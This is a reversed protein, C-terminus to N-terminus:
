LNRLLVSKKIQEIAWLAHEAILPELDHTARELAPLASADGTNGLAVCVNRLLGRRKTRMIPTGRFRTKFGAEDLSLLELLDPTALDPRAHDRMIKGAQAFRNWPCAALCDDCGYIRNGIAPRLEVPISGKLEITLYSICRRADLQFPATIAATPCATLCRTCSGCHNKEPTDPALELTTIIEALFIWNGLRRSILNTHKGIFGLGARQALDRELLPGTDVYWLSRTHEGGLHNIFHTLSKLKEGIVDHYDTFRAYRAIISPQPNLTSPQPSSPKDPDKEVSCADPLVAHYSVALSIVSRAGALVLQPDVRKEANRELWTMEGHRNDALWQTFQPASAPPSAAAFHCDDFGLELAHQRVADNM